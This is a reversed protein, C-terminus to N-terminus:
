RRHGVQVNRDITAVKAMTRVLGMKHVEVFSAEVLSLSKSAAHASHAPVRM